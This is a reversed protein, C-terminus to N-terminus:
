YNSDANDLYELEDYEGGALYDDVEGPSLPELLLSDARVGFYGNFDSDVSDRWGPPLSGHLTSWFGADGPLLLRDSM